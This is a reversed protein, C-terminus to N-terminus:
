KSAINKSKSSKADHVYKEVKAKMNGSEIQYKILKNIERPTYTNKNVQKMQNNKIATFSAKDSIRGNKAPNQIIGDVFYLPDGNEATIYAYNNTEDPESLVDFGDTIMVLYYEGTIAPMTYGWSFYDYEPGRLEHVINCDPPIDIYNYWNGSSGFTEGGVETLSGDEGYSGYDDTYYDYLIIGYDEADYANYYIYIINWDESASIADTGLNYANYLIYRTLPDTDDEDDYDYLEWAVIDMGTVEGDPDGDGDEDPNATETDAVFAAFCFEGTNGVFFEQDVWIYGNNGWSPGWSNVVRFAGNSGKSDDYGSLTMAHYAHQMGPDNYTDYDIIADSNWAMFNDGLRAGISIARGDALYSKLVDIDVSIQRYNAITNDAANTGSQPNYSCDGMDTYPVNDLTAIGRSLMVDFAAEFGTGNCSSGKDSDPIAWFLDKPSMQNSQTSLSANPNDIGYLFTRLNYGVSWAVCTGYSGQNGIPPFKSSMDVSAPVEGNGAGFNIDNEINATDETNSLGLTYDLVNDVIDTIDDGDSDEDCSNFPLSIAFALALMTAIKLFNFRKM